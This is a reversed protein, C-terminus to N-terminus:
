AAKRKAKKGTFNEFRQVIVDCYLPDLEMLFAHRKLQEAAILTSGSGGFLDLVHEGVRSSYEIARAALEVPKETLHVMAQPNVKKVSWVDTVNNPGFYRHAAGEKWGYFCWEHDGMFDKRTIVPHGKVWIITQSFYLESAKLAPPYNAINVWGGWIYFGGGPVLVRSINGFWDLLSSAFDEDSQFDSLLRRGKAKVKAKEAKPSQRPPKIGRERQGELSRWSHPPRKGPRQGGTDAGGSAPEVNVNYPPDTNAMHISAGALLRDLDDRNRSNGCMLRHEGLLWIDGPQTMAEDPPDPIEDPDGQPVDSSSLIRLLDHGSFGTLDLDFGESQLALLEKTLKEDDWTSLTSTQNDAIRYAKAQEPTLGTAVHVPVKDLGLKEAAKYRTHGVIIENQEDVVIPQRFGFERISAAVSEVGADNQRPNDAYPKIESLVVMKIKM